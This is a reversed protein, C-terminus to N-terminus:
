APLRCKGSRTPHPVPDALLWQHAPASMAAGMVTIFVRRDMPDAETVARMARAAGEATWPLALGSDARLLPQQDNNGSPPWGLTLPSIPRALEASLLAAILEPWPPRPREGRIWKYPTKEHIRERRGHFAAHEVLKRALTEPRWGLEKLSAALQSESM